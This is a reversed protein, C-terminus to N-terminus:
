ADIEMWVRGRVTPPVRDNLIDFLPEWVFEMTSIDKKFTHDVWM